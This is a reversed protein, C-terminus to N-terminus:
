AVQSGITALQCVQHCCQQGVCQCKETTCVEGSGEDFNATTCEMTPVRDKIGHTVSVGGSSVLTPQVPLLVNADPEREAEEQEILLADSM